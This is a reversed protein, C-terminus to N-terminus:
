RPSRPRRGAMPRGPGPRDVRHGDERRALAVRVRDVTSPLSVITRSDSPMWRFSAPEDIAASRPADVADVGPSRRSQDSCRVHERRLDAQVEELGEHLEGQRQVAAALLRADERQLQLGQGLQVQRERRRQRPPVRPVEQGAAQGQRLEPEQVKLTYVYSAGLHRQESASLSCESKAAGGGRRSRAPRSRRSRASRSRAPTLAAGLRTGAKMLVETIPDRPSSARSAVRLPPRAPARAIAGRRACGPGAALLGGAAKGLVGGPLAFENEYEFRTEGDEGSSGTSSTRRRARRVRASGARSGRRIPRRWGGASRSRSAPSGCSRASSTARARAPGAAGGEYSDHTTVWRELQSPDM